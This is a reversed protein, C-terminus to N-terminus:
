RCAVPRYITWMHCLLRCQLQQLLQVLKNYKCIGSVLSITRHLENNNGQIRMRPRRQWTFVGSYSSWSGVGLSKRSQKYKICMVSCLLCWPLRLLSMWHWEGASLIKAATRQIHGPSSQYSMWSGSFCVSGYTYHSTLEVLYSLRWIIWDVLMLGRQSLVILIPWQHIMTVFIGFISWVDTRHLWM